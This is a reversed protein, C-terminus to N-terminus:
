LAESQRDTQARPLSWCCSRVRAGEESVLQTATNSRPDKWTSNGVAQRGAVQRARELGDEVFGGVHDECKVSRERFGKPEECPVFPLSLIPHGVWRELMMEGNGRGSVPYTTPQPWPSGDEMELVCRSRESRQAKPFLSQRSLGEGSRQWSFEEKNKSVGSYVDSGGPRTVEGERPAERQTSAWLTATM